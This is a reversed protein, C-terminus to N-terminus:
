KPCGNNDVPGIQNPCKDVKDLVGDKDADQWPCGKNSNSGSVDPCKDKKNILGDGDSDPCGNLEKPGASLPCEDLSEKIGDGDSDPCGNFQNLGFDNPCDDENDFIGDKDTDVGGFKFVLGVSHQFHKIGYDKTALKYVSQFNIGFHDTLWINLGAGANLNGSGIQDLWTYGGGATIFPDFTNLQTLSSNFNYKFMGDLSVYPFEENSNEDNETVSNLSVDTTFVIGKKIYRGTTIRLGSADQNWTKYRGSDGSISSIPNNVINIGAGISWPNSTDQAQLSFFILSFTFVFILSLISKM